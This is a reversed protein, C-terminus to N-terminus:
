RQAPRRRPGASRGLVGPGSAARSARGLHRSPPERAPQWQDPAGHGPRAHRGPRRRPRPGPLLLQRGRVPLRRPSPVHGPRARRGLRRVPLRRPTRGPLAPARHRRNVLLRRVPVLLGPQRRRRALAAPHRRCRVPRVAPPLVERHAPRAPRPHQRRPPPGAVPSRSTPIPNRREAPVAPRSRDLRAPRAVPPSRVRRARPPRRAVLGM